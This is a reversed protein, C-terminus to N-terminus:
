ALMILSRMPIIRPVKKPRKKPLFTSTILGIPSINKFRRKVATIGRIKKAIDEEMAFISREFFIPLTIITIIKTKRPVTSIEAISVMKVTHIKGSGCFISV